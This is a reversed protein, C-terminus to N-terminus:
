SSPTAGVFRTCQSGKMASLVQQCVTHVKSIQSKFHIIMNKMQQEMINLRNLINDIEGNWQMIEQILRQASARTFAEAEEEVVLMDGTPTGMEGVEELEGEELDEPPSPSIQWDHHPPDKTDESHHGGLRKEGTSEDGLSVNFMESEAEEETPDM